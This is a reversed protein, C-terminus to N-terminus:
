IYVVLMSTAWGVVASGLIAGLVFGTVGALTRDERNATNVAFGMGALGFIIVAITAASLIIGDM